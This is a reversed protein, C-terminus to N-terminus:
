ASDITHLINLYLYADINFKYSYAPTPCQSSFFEQDMLRFFIINFYLNTARNYSIFIGQMGKILM